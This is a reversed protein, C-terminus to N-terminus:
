FKLDVAFLVAKVQGALKLNLKCRIEKRIQREGGEVYIVRSM